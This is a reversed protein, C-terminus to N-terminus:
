SKPKVATVVPMIPFGNEIGFTSVHAIKGVVRSPEKIAADVKAKTSPVNVTFLRGEYQCTLAMHDEKGAVPSVQVVPVLLMTKSTDIAQAEKKPKEEKVTAEHQWSLIHYCKGCHVGTMFGDRTHPLRFNEPQPETGKPCECVGNTEHKSVAKRKKSSAKKKEECIAIIEDTM